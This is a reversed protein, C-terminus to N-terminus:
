ITILMPIIAQKSLALDTSRQSSDRIIRDDPIPKRAKASANWVQSTRQTHDCLYLNMM